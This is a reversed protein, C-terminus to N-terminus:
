RRWKAASTSTLTLLRSLKSGSIWGIVSLFADRQSDSCWHSSLKIILCDRFVPLFVNKPVLILIEVLNISNVMVLILLEIVINRTLIFHWLSKFNEISKLLHLITAMLKASFLWRFAILTYFM